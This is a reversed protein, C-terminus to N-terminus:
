VPGSIRTIESNTITNACQRNAGTQQQQAKWEDNCDRQCGKGDRGIGRSDTLSNSFAPIGTQSGLYQQANDGDIICPPNNYESETHRNKSPHQTVVSLWAKSCAKQSSPPAIIIPATIPRGAAQSVPRRRGPSGVWTSATATIRRSVPSDEKSPTDESKADMTAPVTTAFRRM